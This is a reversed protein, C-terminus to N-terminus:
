SVPGWFLIRRVKSWVIRRIKNKAKPKLKPTHAMARGKLNCLLFGELCLKTLSIQLGVLSIFTGARLPPVSSWLASGPVAPREPCLETSRQGPQTNQFGPQCFCFRVPTNQFGPLCFCIGSMHKKFDPRVVCSEPCANTQVRAFLARTRVPTKQIRAFM